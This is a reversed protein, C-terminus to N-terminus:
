VFKGYCSHYELRRLFIGSINRPESDTLTMEIVNFIDHNFCKVKNEM